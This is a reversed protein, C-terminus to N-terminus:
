TARTSDHFMTQHKPVREVREAIEVSRWLAGHNSQWSNLFAYTQLKIKMSSNQRNDILIFQFTLNLMFGTVQYPM